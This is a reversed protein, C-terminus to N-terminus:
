PRGLCYLAKRGRLFLKGDSVAPSAILSDDLRNEALKEFTAAAAVVTCSGNLSVFYIRGEAALPSAKHDGPLRQKWKSEGTKADFCQAWGQDSVIFVLGNSVVPCPSDPTSDKTRWAVASPPVEGSGGPKVAVLDRRMGCTAYVMGAAVTPGTITRNGSLGPLYWVQKGTAPDYADLQNGGMVLLETRGDVEAFVPTTYADCEEAKAQTNRLTKWRLEGTKQDHAVLYSDVPPQGLDKLSDQMCVTIVLDKYLVPSNAHGWWITYPGFDKQLNRHWLQTGDCDYAALDGNGFHVFVRQGDTVPSPSALNHLPHFKQEGRPQPTKRRVAGGGVSREWEVKGSAKSVRLLLLEQDRQSTVFLADGWIAPTSAGDGPLPCKWLVNRDKAWELPLGKEATVSNGDPGRWQPWNGALAPLTLVAPLLLASLIVRTLRCFM